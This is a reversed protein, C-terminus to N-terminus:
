PRRRTSSTCSSRLSRMGAKPSAGTKGSCNLSALDHVLNHMVYPWGRTGSIELDPSVLFKEPDAEGARCMAWASSGTIFRDRPLDHPDLATGDTPDVHGEHLEADVLRWRQEHEDWVEAVVHDLNWEAMFYSAFGVRSRAPIGKHRAISVFLLAFDRCCGVMRQHPARHSGLPAPNLQFLRGFMRDAFRTDIEAIREPAIGNETFDGDARYHFVLPTVVDRISAIDAPLADLSAGFSGPDTFASQSAYFTTRPPASTM